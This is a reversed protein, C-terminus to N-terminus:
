LSTFFSWVNAFLHTTDVCYNDEGDALGRQIWFDVSLNARRDCKSWRATSGEV